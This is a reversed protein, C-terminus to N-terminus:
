EFQNSHNDAGWKIKTLSKKEPQFFSHFRHDLIIPLLELVQPIADSCELTEEYWRSIILDYFGLMSDLLWSVSDFVLASTVIGKLIQHSSTWVKPCLITCDSANNRHGSRHGSSSVSLLFM